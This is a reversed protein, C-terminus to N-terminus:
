RKCVQPLISQFQSDCLVCYEVTISAESRLHIFVFGIIMVKQGFNDIKPTYAGTFIINILSQHLEEQVQLLFVAATLYLGRDPRCVHDVGDLHYINCVLYFYKM